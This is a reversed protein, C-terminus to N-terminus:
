QKNDRLDMVDVIYSRFFRGIFPIKWLIKRWLSLDEYCGRDKYIVAFQPDGITAEDFFDPDVEEQEKVDIEMEGCSNLSIKITDNELDIPEQINKKFSPYIKM